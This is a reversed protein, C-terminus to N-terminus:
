GFLPQYKGGPRGLLHLLLAAPDGVLAAASAATQIASVLVPQTAPVRAGTAHAIDYSHAVLEFTRTPLYDGLRMGGAATPVVPEGDGVRELAARASEIGERITTLPAPGLDRGAQHGRAAVAADDASPLGRVRAFYEGASECEVPQPGVQALYTPVTTVARLTHGVLARVDWEGLGPLDWQDDAIRGCTEAFMDCAELFVRAQDM